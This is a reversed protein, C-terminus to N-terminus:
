CVFGRKILMRWHLSPVSCSNTFLLVLQIFSLFFSSLFSSLVEKRESIQAERSHPRRDLSISVLSEAIICSITKERSLQRWQTAFSENRRWSSLSRSSFFYGNSGYECLVKHCAKQWIGDCKIINPPDIQSPRTLNSKRQYPKIQDSKIQNSKISRLSDICM